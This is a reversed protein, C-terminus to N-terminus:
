GHRTERHIPEPSVDLGTTEESLNSLHGRKWAWVLGTAVAAMNVFMLSYIVVESRWFEVSM